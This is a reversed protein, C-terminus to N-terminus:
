ARAGGTPQPLGLRRCLAAFRTDAQYRRLFPNIYIQLVAPDRTTVGHDLWRFMEDAEGRLAHVMAIQGAATDPYKAALEALAADADDRQRNATGAMAVSYTRWFDDPELKAERMAAAGDGRLIAIMALLMHVKSGQPHDNLNRHLEREADDLDGSAVLGLALNFSEQADLPDLAVARRDLENAEEYEGRLLHGYGLASLYGPTQPELEHAREAERRSGALDFDVNELLYAKSGHGNALDPALRLAADVADRARALAEAKQGPTFVFTEVNAAQVFGLEAYAKAYAPDIRVAEEFYDIAKQWSEQDYRHTYFTGQLMATYARLDGGPPADGAPAAQQSQAGGLLTVKLQEAVARAIDSQVALIEKFERDYTESWVSAGDTANVLEVSIRVREVSRRVSGELLWGVGLKTGISRSDETRGKFQFASTRGIVKLRGLHALTAILEESIGDAFYENAPDGTSNALPLVAISKEGAPVSATDGGPMFRHLVFQNLLLVVVALGLVAIIAKDLKKGTQIAVSERHDVESERKIGDPTWEYFWSFLMAFPLGVIAAIVAARVAANPIDFFPFVQTAVQVLLWASGAYFM